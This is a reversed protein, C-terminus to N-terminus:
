NNEIEDRGMRYRAVSILGLVLGTYALGTICSSLIQAHTSIVLYTGSVLTAAVLSYSLRLRNISPSALSATSAAISGLAIIIHAVLLM